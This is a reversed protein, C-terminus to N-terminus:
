IFDANGELRLLGAKVALGGAYGSLQGSSGLVRHCPVLLCVPNRANAAGVARAAAPRGVLRALNAYTTTTGYSIAQVAAWVQRQFDTGRLTVPLTFERRDGAFYERLQALVPTLRERDRIWVAASPLPRVGRVFDLGTVATEDMVVRVTGLPTNLLDWYM